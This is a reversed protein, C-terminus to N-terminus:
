FPRQTDKRVMHKVMDMALVSNSKEEGMLISNWETWITKVHSSESYADGFDAVTISKM